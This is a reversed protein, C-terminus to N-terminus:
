QRTWNRNLGSEQPFGSLTLTSGSVTATATITGQGMSSGDVTLTTGSLTYPLEEEEGEMKMLTATFEIIYTGGEAKWTRVLPNNEDDSSDTPCGTFTFIVAVILVAFGIFLGHRTKMTQEKSSVARHPKWSTIGEEL